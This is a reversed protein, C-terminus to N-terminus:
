GGVIVNIIAFVIWGTPTLKPVLPQIRIIFAIEMAVFSSDRGVWCMWGPTSSWAPQGEGYMTWCQDHLAFGQLVGPRGCGIIVSPLPFECSVRSSGHSKAHSQIRTPCTIITAFEQHYPVIQEREKPHKCPCRQCSCRARGTPRWNPHLRPLLWCPPRFDSGPIASQKSKLLVAVM